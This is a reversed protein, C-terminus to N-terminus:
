QCTVELLELEFNLLILDGISSISLRHSSTFRNLRALPLLCFRDIESKSETYPVSRNLVMIFSDRMRGDRMADDVANWVPVEGWRVLGSMMGVFGGDGGLNGRM